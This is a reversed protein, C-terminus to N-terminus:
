LIVCAAYKDAAMNKGALKALDEAAEKFLEGTLSSCEAYLDCRMQSAIHVGEQPMLTAGKRVKREEATWERRLDRKLGLVMVPMREDYNFVTDLLHKWKTHLSTLSARNTIDFCLVILNPRLGTIPMPAATDYFLYNWRRGNM